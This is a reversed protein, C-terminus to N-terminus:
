DVEAIKESNTTKDGYTSEMVLTGCNWPSKPAKLISTHPTGLDGSFIITKSKKKPHNKITLLSGGVPKVYGQKQKANNAQSCAGVYPTLKCTIYASDLIHGAPKPKIKLQDSVQQWKGYKVPVIQKEIHSLFKEILQKNRTFGIKVAGELVLPLLKATPESCYIPGKFGKGLLHPIRGVHDIYVHTVVLAKIHDVEFPISTAIGLVSEEHAPYEPLNGGVFSSKESGVGQFLGCDILISELEQNKNLYQLEHCSGTVGKVAGHHLINCKDKLLAQNIPESPLAQPSLQTKMKQKDIWLYKLPM